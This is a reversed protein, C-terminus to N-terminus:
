GYAGYEGDARSHFGGCGISEFRTTRARRNGGGDILPRSGGTNALFRPAAAGVNDRVENHDGELQFGFVNAEGARVLINRVISVGSSDRSVGVNQASNYIINHRVLVNKAGGSEDGPGLKIGRGNPANFLLNRAILGSPHPSSSMDDVYINHDQNLGNTPHTDHICSKTVAWRGLNSRPGDDIHLGSTSHAGWIEARTLKWGTGGYMRAMPENPNGGAWTVDIGRITWYSPNGLWLQGRVVPREGPFNRVLIRAGPRGPAVSLKIRERYDGGRVYLRDGPRLKRLAHALSGFPRRRTGRSSNSRNPSVFLVRGAQPASPAASELQPGPQPAGASCGAVCAPALLALLMPRRSAPV